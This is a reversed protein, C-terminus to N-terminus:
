EQDAALEQNLKKAHGIQIVLTTVFSDFQNKDPGSRAVNFLISGYDDACFSAYEVKRSTALAVILSSASFIGLVGPIATSQIAFEHILLISAFGTLLFM